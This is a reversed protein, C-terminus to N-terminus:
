VTGGCYKAHVDCLDLKRRRTQGEERSGVERRCCVSSSEGSFRRRTRVKFVSASLLLLMLFILILNSGNCVRNMTNNHM